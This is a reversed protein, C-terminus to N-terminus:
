ARVDPRRSSSTARPRPPARGDSVLKAGTGLTSGYGQGPASHNKCHERRRRSLSDFRRRASPSTCAGLSTEETAWSGVATVEFSAEIVLRGWCDESAGTERAPPAARRFRVPSGMRVMRTATCRYYPAQLDPSRSHGHNVTTCRLRRARFPVCIARGTLVVAGRAQRHHCWSPHHTLGTWSSVLRTPLGGVPLRPLANRATKLRTRSMWIRGPEDTQAPDASSLMTLASRTMRTSGPGHPQTRVLQASCRCFRLAGRVAPPRAEDVVTPGAM